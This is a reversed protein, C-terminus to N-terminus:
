ESAAHRAPRKEPEEATPEEATPEEATPEEATPEEATPEEATPEEATPEEATPEEATPEEATPEEATPEEATPEEPAPEANAARRRQRSTRYGDIAFILAIVGVLIGFATFVVPTNPNSTEAEVPDGVNIVAIQVRENEKLKRQDQQQRVHRLFTSTTVASLESAREPTASTAIVDVVPLRLNGPFRENGGPQTTRRVASISETLPDMAGVERIVTQRLGSGSIIYAYIVASNSLDISQPATYGRPIEQAPVEAQYLTDKASTVLLTTTASYSRVARSELGDPGLSYGTYIGAAIAVILGLILLWLYHWLVKLYSPVEM